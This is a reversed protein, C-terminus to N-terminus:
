TTGRRNAVIFQWYHPYGIVLEPNGNTRRDVVENVEFDHSQIFNVIDDRSYSNVYVRLNIGEDLYEDSVYLHHSDDTVSERLILSKVATDLMRELPRHYNDINSLVNMCVVHDARGRFDEIRIARLQQSNVGFRKLERRGIEIFQATADIGHYSVPLDRHRISHFFYGTGCGVDLLSDGPEALERLIEAAQAACTMEEVQDRARRTYLERVSASHEWINYTSWGDSHIVAEVM